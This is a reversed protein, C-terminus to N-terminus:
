KGGKSIEYASTIFNQEHRRLRNWINENKLEVCITQFEEDQALLREPSWQTKLIRLKEGRVQREAKDYKDSAAKMMKRARALVDQIRRNEAERERIRQEDTEIKTWDAQSHEEQSHKRMLGLGELLRHFSNDAKERTTIM